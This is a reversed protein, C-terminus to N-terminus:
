GNCFVEWDNMLKRRPELLESRAYAARTQDTNVHSLALESLEEAYSTEARAWEKFCSRFGHATSNVEMRKLVSRMFNDSPIEGRNNPFVLGLPNDRPQAELLSIAKDSLPVRHQKGAKMRGAPITWIKNEFDIEQWTIGSKKIRKDGIVENSRSATLITFELARAATGDKKSLESIFKAIDRYPISEFHTIKRIKSPMPYLEKLNGEWQAPNSGDIYGRALCWDFIRKIRTRVSVATSTKTTWIPTLIMEIHLRKIDTINLDGIIPFAHNTLSQEWQIKQRPGRFEQSKMTIFKNAAEKFTMQSAQSAILDAKLQAKEQSPDVGEAIKSKYERAKDRASSLGVEPYSGLGFDRRKIGVKTRLIWSKAESVTIQIHLGAVGGVAHLSTYAKGTNESILPKMKRVQLDTLEKAKKPM